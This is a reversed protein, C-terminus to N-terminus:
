ASTLPQSATNELHNEGHNRRSTSTNRSLAARGRAYGFTTILLGAVIAVARQVGALRRTRLVDGLGRLVGLPLTRVTYSSEAALGKSVSSMQTVAAKSRGEHYCRSRFYAWTGRTGPVNHFVRAAPEYLFEGRPWRAGARICYETEECGVPLTGVRGIGSRFGGIEEVVSRRFSMNCGILNRVPAAERPMGRYTCGVVWDFEEPFWAPRQNLWNPVIAGGVGLVNERQYHGVLLALWNPAAVADEDMFALIEGTAEAMGSNRAGSLGQERSNEVVKLEVSHSDGSNLGAAGAPPEVDLEHRVRRLLAENHDIVVIVERPLHTQAYLSQVAARLDDWRLETYACMIVSVSTPNGSTPNGNPLSNVGINPSSSNSM